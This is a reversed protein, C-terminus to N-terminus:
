NMHMSRHVAWQIAGAMKSQESPIKPIHHGGGHMVVKARRIDCLSVFEHGEAAQDDRNGIVHVTPIHFLQGHTKHLCKPLVKEEKACFEQETGKVMKQHVLFYGAFRPDDPMAVVTTNEVAAPGQYVLTVPEAEMDMPLSSSIFVAMRFLQDFPKSKALEVILTGALASGQSFAIVGDFPGEDQIFLELRHIASTIAEPTVSDYYCLYPGPFVQRIEIAASTEIHGEFFEYEWHQPLLARMPQLQAELIQANMGIGHLCLFRM